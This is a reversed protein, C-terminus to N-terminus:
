DDITTIGSASTPKTETAILNTLHLHRATLVFGSNNHSGDGIIDPNLVDGLELYTGCLKKLGFFLTSKESELM